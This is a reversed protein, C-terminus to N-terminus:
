MYIILSNCNQGRVIAYKYCGSQEKRIHYQPLSIYLRDIDHPPTFLPLNNPM